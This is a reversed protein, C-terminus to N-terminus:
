HTKSTMGLPKSGAHELGQLLRPVHLHPPPTVSPARHPNPLGYPVEIPQTAVQMVAQTCPHSCTSIPLSPVRYQWAHSKAPLSAPLSSSRERRRGTNGKPYFESKRLIHIRRTFM